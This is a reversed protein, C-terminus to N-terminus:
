NQDNEIYIEYKLTIFIISVPYPCFYDKTVISEHLIVIKIKDIGFHVVQTFTEGPLYLPFHFLIVSETM